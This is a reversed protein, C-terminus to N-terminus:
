VQGVAPSLTADSALSNFHWIVRPTLSRTGEQLEAAELFRLAFGALDQLFCVNWITL